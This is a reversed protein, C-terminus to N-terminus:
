HDIQLLITMPEKTILLRLLRGAQTLSTRLTSAHRNSTTYNKERLLSKCKMFFLFLFFFCFFFM